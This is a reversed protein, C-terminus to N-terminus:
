ATSGAGIEVALTIRGNQTLMGILSSFLSSLRKTSKRESLVEKGRCIQLIGNWTDWWVFCIAKWLNWWIGHILLSSIQYKRQSDLGDITSVNPYQTVDCILVTSQHYMAYIKNKYFIVDQYDTFGTMSTWCKDGLRCFALEYSGGFIGVSITSNNSSAAPNASLVMKQVYFFRVGVHVNTRCEPRPLSLRAKMYPCLLNIDLEDSLTVLWGNSTSCCAQRRIKPIHIGITEGGINFFNCTDTLNDFPTLTASSVTNRTRFFAMWFM